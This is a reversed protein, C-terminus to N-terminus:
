SRIANGEGAWPPPSPNTGGLAESMRAISRRRLTKITAKNMKNEASTTPPNKAQHYRKGPYRPSHKMSHTDFM